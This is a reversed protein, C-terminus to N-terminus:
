GAFMVDLAPAPAERALIAEFNNHVNRSGDLSSRDIPSRTASAFGSM